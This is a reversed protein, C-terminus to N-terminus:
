IRHEGDIAWSRSVATRIKLRSSSSTSSRQHPFMAPKPSSFVPSTTRLLLSTWITRARDRPLLASTRRSLSALWVKGLSLAPDSSSPPLPAVDCSRREVRNQHNAGSYVRRAIHSTPGLPIREQAWPLTTSRHPFAIGRQIYKPLLQRIFGVRIIQHLDYFTCMHRGLLQASSLGCNSGAKVHWPGKDGSM